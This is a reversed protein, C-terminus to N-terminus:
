LWLFLILLKPKNGSFFYIALVGKEFVEIICAGISYKQLILIQKAGKLSM